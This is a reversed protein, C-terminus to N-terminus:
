KKLIPKIVGKPKESSAAEREKHHFHSVCSDVTANFKAVSQPEQGNLLDKQVAARVDQLTLSKSDNNEMLEKVFKKVKKRFEREDPDDKRKPMRRPCIARPCSCIRSLNRTFISCLEHEVQCATMDYGVLSVSVPVWSVHIM